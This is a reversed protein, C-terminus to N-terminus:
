RAGGLLESVTVFRYGAKRLRRLIGPLAEATHWGRGNAHMIIISGNRCERTVTEIMKAASVEPDPDGSVVDWQITTLGLEKAIRLVRQDYEGYPARFLRAQRGTLKQMVAQTKALEERIEPDTLRTLHPHLYTHNGLEFRPEQALQKTAEEHTEMWRGGLFFTAPTHTEKLIQVIKADYGTLKRTQCADFTLAVLPKARSGHCVPAPPEGRPAAGCWAAWLVLGAGLLAVRLPLSQM